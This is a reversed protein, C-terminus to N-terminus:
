RRAALVPRIELNDSHNRAAMEGLYGCAEEVQRDLTDDGAAESNGDHSDFCKHSSNYVFIKGQTEKVEWQQGQVQQRNYNGWCPQPHVVM